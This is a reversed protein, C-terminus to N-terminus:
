PAALMKFGSTKGAGTPGVLAIGFRVQQTEFIQVVKSIYQPVPQLTQHWCRNLWHQSFSPM